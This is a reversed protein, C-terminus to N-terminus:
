KKPGALCLGEGFGNRSPIQEVDKDFMKENLKLEPNLM